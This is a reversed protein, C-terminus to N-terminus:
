MKKIFDFNKCIGGAAELSCAQLPKNLIRVGDLHSELFFIQQSDAKIMREEDNKYSKVFIRNNELSAVANESNQKYNLVLIIMSGVFLTAILIRKAKTSLM